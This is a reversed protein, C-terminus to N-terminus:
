GSLKRRFQEKIEDASKEPKGSDKQKSTIDRYKDILSLNNSLAYLADAIYNKYEEQRKMRLLSARSHEM